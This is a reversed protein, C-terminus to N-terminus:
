CFCAPLHFSSDDTAKMREAKHSVLSIHHSHNANAAARWKEARKEVAAMRKMLRDEMNSRMKEIKLEMKKLEAEAKADQLNIWAQIKAEERRCRICCQRSEKDDQVHKRARAFGNELGSWVVEEKEDGSNWNNLSSGEFLGISSMVTSTTAQTNLVSSASLKRSKLSCGDANNGVRGAEAYELGNYVGKGIDMFRDKLFNRPPNDDLPAEFSRDALPVMTASSQFQKDIRKNGKTSKVSRPSQLPHLPSTKVWKEAEDWKSPLHRRPQITSSPHKKTHTISADTTGSIPNDYLPM